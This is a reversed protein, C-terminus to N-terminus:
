FYGRSETDRSTLEVGKISRKWIALLRGEGGVARGAFAVRVCRSFNDGSSHVEKTAM